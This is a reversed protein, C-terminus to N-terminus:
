EFGYGYGQKTVIRCGYKKLKRRLRNVNVDVTRDLVDFDDAWLKNLIEDRSFYIGPNQVLLSLLDFEKKTLLVEEDDIYCHKKQVDVVLSDYNITKSDGYCRRLLGSVRMVLERVSFPKRVYDDAGCNYGRLVDEECGKATCLIIPLHATKPSERLLQTLRFGSMEGMMVDIILLSYTSLDRLLADEANYAIDVVYGALELNTKLIHCNIEEDDVVLIRYKSKM